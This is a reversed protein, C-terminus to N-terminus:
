AVARALAELSDFRWDIRGVLGAGHFALLGRDSAAVLRAEVEEPTLLFLRFARDEALRRAGPANARVHMAVWVVAVVPPTPPLLAKKADGRLLGFDRWATLLKRAVEQGTATSWAKPGRFVGADRLFRMGDDVSVHAARFRRQEYLFDAAFDFLLRDTLAAHYGLILELTPPEPRARTLLVLGRRVDDNQLYRAQLVRLIEAARGASARGFAGSKRFSALNEDLPRGEDWDRLLEKAYSVLAAGKLIRTTYAREGV